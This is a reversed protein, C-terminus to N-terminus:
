EILHFRKFLQKSFNDRVKKRESNEPILEHDLLSQCFHIAHQVDEANKKKGLKLGHLHCLVHHVVETDIGRPLIIFENKKQSM